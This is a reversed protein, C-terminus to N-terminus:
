KLKYSKFNKIAIITKNNKDEITKFKCQYQQKSMLRDTKSSYCRM